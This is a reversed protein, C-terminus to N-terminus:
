GELQFDDDFDLYREAVKEAEVIYRLGDNLSIPKELELWSCFPNDYTRILWFGGGYDRSRQIFVLGGPVMNALTEGRYVIQYKSDKVGM